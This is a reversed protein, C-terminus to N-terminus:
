GRKTIYDYVMKIAIAGVGSGLATVLWKMWVVTQALGMKGNGYVVHKLDEHAESVRRLVSAMGEQGVTGVVADHIANIKDEQTCHICTTEPDFDARRRVNSRHEVIEPPTM